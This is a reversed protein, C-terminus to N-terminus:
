HFLTFELVHLIFLLFMGMFYASSQLYLYYYDSTLPIHLHEAKSRYCHSRQTQKSGVRCGM